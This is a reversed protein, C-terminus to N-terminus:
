CHHPARPDAHVGPQFYRCTTCMRSVPIQGRQQLGRIMKVLARLLMDQEALSLGDVAAMLFDPWMAAAQAQRAGQDTLFLAVARADDPHTQKRLLEKKLLAGVANSATQVTVGLADAIDTTRVPEPTRTQVFGLIQAQTPTLQLGEAQQWAQSRLLLGIKSLGVLVRQSGSEHSPDADTM